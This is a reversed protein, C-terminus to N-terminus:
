REIVPMLVNSLAMPFESCKLLIDIFPTFLGVAQRREASVERPVEDETQRAAQVLLMIPLTCDKM